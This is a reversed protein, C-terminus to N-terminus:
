QKTPFLLRSVKIHCSVVTIHTVQVRDSVAIYQVPGQQHVGGAVAQAPQQYVQGQPWAQFTAGQQLQVDGFAQQKTEGVTQDPHLSDVYAPPAVAEMLAAPQDVEPSDTDMEVLSTREHM